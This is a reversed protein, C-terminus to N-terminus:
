QQQWQQRKKSHTRVQCCYKMSLSIQRKGKEADDKIDIVKVWVRDGANVADDVSEVKFNALQSIHVLGNSRYGDM